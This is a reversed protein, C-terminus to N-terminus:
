QPRNANWLEDNLCIPPMGIDTVFLKGTHEEHNLLGTKAAAFTLTYKAKICVDCIEGTNGNMGSPLDVAIIDITTPVAKIVSSFPERVQGRTGTGLLADIILDYHESEFSKTLQIMEEIESPFVLDIKENLCLKLYILADGQYVNEAALCVVKVKIGANALLHAIVFGDGANNGKWCLIGVKQLNTYHQRIFNFVTKGANYMLVCGTLELGNIARRDAEQRQEVAFTQM